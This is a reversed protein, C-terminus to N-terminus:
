MMTGQSFGVLATQAATVGEQQMAETIYADLLEASRSFAHRMEEEDSNDLWPIPFWQYGAPNNRCREPANPALFVTDPLHPSLPEALGFLDRGDAGYGHLLIVLSKVTGSRAPARPGTLTMFEVGNRRRATERRPLLGLSHTGCGCALAVMRRCARALRAGKAAGATRLPDAGGGAVCSGRGRICGGPRDLVHPLNGGDLRRHGQHSDARCNGAERADPWARSLRSRGRGARPCLPDEPWVVRLLPARDRGNWPADGTPDGRRCCPPALDYRRCRGFAAALLDDPSAGSIGGGASSAAAARGAGACTCLTARAGGAM